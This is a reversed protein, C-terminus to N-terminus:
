ARSCGFCRIASPTNFDPTWMEVPRRFTGNWSHVYGHVPAARYGTSTNWRAFFDARVSQEGSRHHEYYTSIDDSIWLLFDYHDYHHSGFLKYAQAVVSSYRAVADPPPQTAADTEGALYLSVPAPKEEIMLRRVHAGALMPSDVLADLTVPAFNVVDGTRVAGDLATAFQWGQPLTVSPLYTIDRVYYGAPYLVVTQWQLDLM